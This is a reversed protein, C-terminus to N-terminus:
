IWFLISGIISCCLAIRINTGIHYYKRSKLILVHVMTYCVAFIILSFGVTKM